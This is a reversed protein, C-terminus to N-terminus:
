QVCKGRIITTPTRIQGGVKM